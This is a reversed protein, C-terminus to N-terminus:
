QLTKAFEVLKDKNGLNGANKDIGSVSISVLTDNNYYRLSVSKIKENSAANQEQYIAIDGLGQVEEANYRDNNGRISAKLQDQMQKSSEPNKDKSFLISLRYKTQTNKSNATLSCNEQVLRATEQRSVTSAVLEVKSLDFLEAAKKADIKACNPAFSKVDDTTVPEVTTTTKNNSGTNTNKVKLIYGSAGLVIIAVVIGAVVFIKKAKKSGHRHM